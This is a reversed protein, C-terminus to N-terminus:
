LAVFVFDFVFHDFINASLFFFSFLFLFLFGLRNIRHVEEGM